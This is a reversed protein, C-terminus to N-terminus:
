LFNGQKGAFCNKYNGFVISYKQQKGVPESRYMNPESKARDAPIFSKVKALAHILEDGRVINYLNSLGMLLASLDDASFVKKDVKYDPMIEFGGGVGSTSRIPIGAMSITDIDRYITRPSVEFTDALKQASVRKKELLIMIISVLRDVKM